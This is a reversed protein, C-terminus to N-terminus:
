DELQKVWSKHAKRNWSYKFKKGCLDCTYPMKPKEAKEHEESNEPKESKELEDTM